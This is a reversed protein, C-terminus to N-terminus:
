QTYSGGDNSETGDDTIIDRIESTLAKADIPRQSEIRQQFAKTAVQLSAAIQRLAAQEVLNCIEVSIDDPIPLDDVVVAQGNIRCKAKIKYTKGKKAPEYGYQEVDVIELSILHTKKEETM